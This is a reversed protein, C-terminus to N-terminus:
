YKTYIIKLSPQRRNDSNPGAMVSRYASVASGVVFLKMGNNNKHGLLIEQLHRTIAFRYVKNSADYFGGFVLDGLQIDLPVYTTGDDNIGSLMIQPAPALPDLNFYEVPIILEALNLVCNGLNNVNMLHPVHIMAQLGAGGQLYFQSNGRTSDLLQQEIVTGSYDHEFTTYRACRDNILFTFRITDGSTIERYYMTVKTAADGMDMYLIGGDGTSQAPNDVTVYLGKFWNTFATNDALDATGGANVFRQALNNDLRLRLQPKSSDGTIADHYYNFMDPNQTNYGSMVLDTPDYDLVQNSYYVSDQNMTDLVEYVHFNQADLEGYYSQYAISLVISDVIIDSPNFAPANAELRIQTFLGAKTKGFVPDVMSGLLNNQLEDTRISDSLITYTQLTLTDLVDGHLQDEQPQVLLGLDGETKRCSFLTLSVFFVAALYSRQAKLSSTKLKM